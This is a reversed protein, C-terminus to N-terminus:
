LYAPLIVRVSALKRGAHRDLLDKFSPDHSRVINDLKLQRVQDRSLTFINEPLKEMIFGQVMGFAYPLSLISRRGDTHNLVTQMMEYYTLVLHFDDFTLSNCDLETSSIRVTQVELKLSKGM